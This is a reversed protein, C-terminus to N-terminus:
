LGREKKSGKAELVRRAVKQGVGDKETKQDRKGQEVKREGSGEGVRRSPTRIGKENKRRQLTSNIRNVRTTGRSPDM